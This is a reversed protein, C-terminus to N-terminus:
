GVDSADEDFAPVLALWQEPYREVIREIAHGLAALDAGSPDRPECPRIPEDLIVVCRGGPLRPAFVPIIPSGTLRALRVPGTPIRLHGHLFKVREARQGPLARDGQVVVVEDRLLAERLPMWSAWGGDIPAEVIGLRGRLRSRLREFVRSADRRFVVVVRREEAALAALGAEFAGLHATVLVAGRQASRAARYGALGETRDISARVQEASLAASRGVDAIFDFFSGSVATAFRWRERVSLPRGFIRRANLRTARRVRGSCAPILRCAVPRMAGTLRPAASALGFFPGLWAPTAAGRVPRARPAASSPVAM